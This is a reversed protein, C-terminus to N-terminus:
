SLSNADFKTELTEERQRQVEENSPSSPAQHSFSGTLCECRSAQEEFPLLPVLPSRQGLYHCDAGDWLSIPERRCPSKNITLLHVRSVTKDMSACTQSTDKLPVGPPVVRDAGAGSSPLQLRRLLGKGQPVGPEARGQLLKGRPLMEQWM